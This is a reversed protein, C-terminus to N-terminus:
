GRLVFEIPVEIRGPGGDFAWGRVATVAADDLVRHGCSRQVAVAVVAGDAAVEVVLLVTGTCGRRRAALPYEPARNTGARVSLVRAAPEVVAVPAAAAVVSESVPVVAAPAALRWAALSAEPRMREAAADDFERLVSEAEAAEFVPVVEVDPLPSEEVTESAVPAMPTSPATM